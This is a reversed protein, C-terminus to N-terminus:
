RHASARIMKEARLAQYGKLEFYPSSYLRDSPLSRLLIRFFNNFTSSFSYTMRRSVCQHSLDFLNWGADQDIISPCIFVRSVHLRLPRVRQSPASAAGRSSPQQGASDLKHVTSPVCRHVVWRWEKKCRLPGLKGKYGSIFIMIHEDIVVVLSSM